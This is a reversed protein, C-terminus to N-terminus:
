IEIFFVHVSNKSFLTGSTYALVKFGQVNESALSVYGFNVKKQLKNYGFNIIDTLYYSQFTNPALYDIRDNCPPVGTKLSEEASAGNSLNILNVM